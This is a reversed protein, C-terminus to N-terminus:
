GTGSGPDRLTVWGDEEDTDEVMVLADCGDPLPAGTFIRAAEGARLARTPWLGAAIEMGVPLCLPVTPSAAGVSAARVAYGDVMSNDFPPLDSPALFDQALTRGRAQELGVSEAELPESVATLIRALADDYSLM